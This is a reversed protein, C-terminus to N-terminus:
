YKTVIVKNCTPCRTKCYKKVWKEMCKFGFVHKCPLEVSCLATHKSHCISCIDTMPQTCLRWGYFLSSTTNFDKMKGEARRKKNISKRLSRDEKSEEPITDPLDSMFWDDLEEEASRKM